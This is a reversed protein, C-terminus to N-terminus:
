RRQKLRFPGRVLRKNETVNWTLEVIQRTKVFMRPEGLAHVLGASLFPGRVALLDRIKQLMPEFVHHGTGARFVSWASRIVRKNETVNWTLGVIENTKMFM